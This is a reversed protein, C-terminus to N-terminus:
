SSMRSAIINSSGVHDNASVCSVEFKGIAKILQYNQFYQANFSYEYILNLHFFKVTSNVSTM